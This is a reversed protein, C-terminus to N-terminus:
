EVDKQSFFGAGPMEWSQPNEKPLAIAPHGFRTLIRNAAYSLSELRDHRDRKLQYM